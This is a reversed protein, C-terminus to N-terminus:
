TVYFIGVQMGFPTYEELAVRLNAERQPQKLMSFVGMESGDEAGTRIEVACKQSLQAYAPHGYLTATFQPQLRLSTTRIKAAGKIGELALDPQCRYRRPTRSDPPLVSFRVCGVQRREVVLRGSFISESAYLIRMAPDGGAPGSTDDDEGWITSRDIHVEAGPAVIDAGEKNDIISDHITLRPVTPSLAVGGCIAYALEVHLRENSASPAQLSGSGPDITCHQMVLRGLNGALVRVQGEIVLGNLWIAGPDEDAAPADGNISINGQIHPRRDRLDLRTTQAADFPQAAVIFLQAGAALHITNAGTLSESYTHNDTIAIVGLEATDTNWAAVADTLTTFVNAGGGQDVRALFSSAPNVLNDPLPLSDNRNYPGGGVDGSFGYRYSVGPIVGADPENGSTFVLRGLLPDVAARIPLDVMEPTGDPLLDGNPYPKSAPPATWTSLNCIAIEEAPIAALVGPDLEDPLLVEFVPNDDFYAPPASAGQALGARLGELEDFLARRRLPTPTNIESALHAIEPEAEPLNFLPADLGLQNFTYRNPGVERADATQLPYAQLRWLYIGINPIDFHGQRRAIRRVEATHAASHFPSDRLKSRYLDRLLTGNNPNRILQGSSGLLELSSSDRMDPTRQNNLRVHNLYQTTGLLQFFEVVRAEWGTVDDALQELVAATGKRQRYSLTNAFYARLSYVGASPVMHLNTVGLLDGIYPLVWEEATEVFQDEYAQEISSELREVERQIIALLARLQGGVAEDRQRYYAPLLEYLREEDPWGSM